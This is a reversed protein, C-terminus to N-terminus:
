DSLLENVGGGLRLVASQLCAAVAQLSEKTEIRAGDGSRINVFLLTVKRFEGLWDAQGADIRAQIVPPVYQRIAREAEPPLPMPANPAPRECELSRLVQCGELVKRGEFQKLLAATESSIVVTGPEAQSAPVSIQNFVEGGGVLEWRNEVGGVRALFAPGAAIAVKLRLRVGAIPELGDLARQISLGCAGALRAVPGLQDAGPVLWLALAGDGPFKIIDGGFGNVIEVLRGFCADLVEKLQEAGAAGRPVLREALSTFGTIDAFLLAAPSSEFTPDKLPVVDRALRTRVALPVYTELTRLSSARASGAGEAMIFEALWNSCFRRLSYVFIASNQL